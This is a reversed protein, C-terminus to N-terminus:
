KLNLIVPFKIEGKDTIESEGASVKSFYASKKFSAIQRAVQDFNKAMCVVTLEKKFSDLSLSNLYIEQITLKEVERMAEGYDVSGSLMKDAENMRNQFDFVNKASEGKLINVQTEYESKTIKIKENLSRVDFFLFVFVGLVLVTLFIEAPIMWGWNTKETQQPQIGGSALNINVM